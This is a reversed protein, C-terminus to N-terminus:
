WRGELGLSVGQLVLLGTLDVTGSPPDVQNLVQHSLQNTPQAISDLWLGFYGCRFDWCRSLPVVATLGVEGVFSASGRSGLAIQRSYAFPSSDTYDFASSVTSANYYAGAKVLGDVRFGAQTTLLAGDLGIQGGYLNNTCSSLYNDQGTVTPDPAPPTNSFTSAMQLREYWQLWRFGFLFQMPLAGVATRRNFEASQLSGTLTATASSLSTDTTPDGTPGFVNGFIGPPSTAYGNVAYPLSRQSYFNGAYLYTAEVAEGCGDGRFLSVRPAVLPDSILQNANLATPGLAATTPDITQSFIPRDRPANRWLIIADVRGTWCRDNCARRDALRQLLGSRGGAHQDAFPACHPCPSGAGLSCCDTVLAESLLEHEDLGTVEPAPSPQPLVANEQDHAEPVVPLAPEDSAIVSRLVTPSSASAERERVSVPRRQRQAAQAPQAWEAAPAPPSALTGCAVVAGAAIRRAM